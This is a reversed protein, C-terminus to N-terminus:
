YILLKNIKITIFFFRSLHYANTVSSTSRSNIFLLYKKWFCHSNCFKGIFDPSERLNVYSVSACYSCCRFFYLNYIFKLCSIFSFHISFCTYLQLLIARNFHSLKNKNQECKQLQQQKISISKWNSTISFILQTSNITKSTTYAFNLM